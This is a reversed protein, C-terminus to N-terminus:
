EEWFEERREGQEEWPVWASVFGPPTWLGNM